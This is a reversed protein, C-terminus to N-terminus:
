STEDERMVSGNTQVKEYRGFQEAIYDNWPSNTTQRRPFPTRRDWYRQVGHDARTRSAAGHRKQEDGRDDRGEDEDGLAGCGAARFGGLADLDVQILEPRSDLGGHGLAGVEVVDAGVGGVEAPDPDVTTEVPQGTRHVGGERSMSVSVGGADIRTAWAYRTAANPTRAFATRSARGAISAASVWDAVASWPTCAAASARPVTPWSELQPDPTRSNM